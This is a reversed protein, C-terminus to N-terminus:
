WCIGVRVWPHWPRWPGWWVHPACVVPPPSVVHVRRVVGETRAPAPAPAPKSDGGAVQELVKESVGANKLEILDQASLKPMPGHSRVYALVVGDSIQAAALKKLDDKTVEAFSAAPLLFVAAITGLLKKM